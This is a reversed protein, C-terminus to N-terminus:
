RDESHDADLRLTVDLAQALDSEIKHLRAKTERLENDVWEATGPTSDSKPRQKSVM